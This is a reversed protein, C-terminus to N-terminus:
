DRFGSAGHKEYGPHCRCRKRVIVGDYDAETLWGTRFGNDDNCANHPCVNAGDSWRIYMREPRDYPWTKSIEGSMKRAIIARYKEECREKYRKAQEKTIMTGTM